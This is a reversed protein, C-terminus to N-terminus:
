CVTAITYVFAGGLTLLGLVLVCGQGSKARKPASVFLQSDDHEHILSDLCEECAGPNAKIAATRGEHHKGLANFDWSIHSSHRPTGWFMRDYVQTKKCRPCESKREIVVGQPYKESLPSTLLRRELFAIEMMDSDSPWGSNRNRIERIKARSQREFEKWQADAANIENCQKDYEAASYAEITRM